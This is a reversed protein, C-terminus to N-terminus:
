VPNLEKRLGCSVIVLFVEYLYKHLCMVCMGQFLSTKQKLTVHQVQLIVHDVEVAVCDVAAHDVAVCDVAVHDMAVRDVVVHKIAMHGVAMHDM